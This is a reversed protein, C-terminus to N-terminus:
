YNTHYLLVIKSPGTTVTAESAQLTPRTLIEPTRFQMQRFQPSGSFGEGVRKPFKGPGTSEIKCGGSEWGGWAGRQM